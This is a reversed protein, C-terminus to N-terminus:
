RSKMETFIWCYKSRRRLIITLSLKVSLWHWNHSVCYLCQKRAEFVIIRDNLHKEVKIELLITGLFM